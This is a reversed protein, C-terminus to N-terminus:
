QVAGDKKPAPLVPNGFHLTQLLLNLLERDKTYTSVEFLYGDHIFWVAIGKGDWLASDTNFSIGEVGETIVIKKFDSLHENPNNEHVIAETLEMEAGSVIPYILILVADQEENIVVIEQGKGGPISSNPSTFGQPIRFSFPPQDNRYWTEVNPDLYFKSTTAPVPALSESANPSTLILSVLFSAALGGAIFFM